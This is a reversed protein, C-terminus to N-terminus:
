PEGVSERLLLGHNGAFDDSDIAIEFEVRAAAERPQDDGIGAVPGNLDTRM